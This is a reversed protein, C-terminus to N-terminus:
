QTAIVGFQRGDQADYVLFSANRKRAVSELLAKGEADQTNNIIMKVRPLFLDLHELLGERHAKDPGDVILVEYSSPLHRKLQESDYWGNKLPAYIYQTKYRNMWVPDHEVSYVSYYKSLEESSWGSGLEVITAGEPVSTRVYDFLEKPITWQGFGEQYVYYPGREKKSAFYIFAFFSVLILVTLGLMMREKM